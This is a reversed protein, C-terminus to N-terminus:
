GPRRNCALIRVSPREVVVPLHWVWGAKDKWAPDWRTAVLYQAGIAACLETAKTGSAPAPQYLKGIAAQIAACPPNEGGFSVDCGSDGSIAQRRLQIMQAQQGYDNDGIGYQVRADKPIQSDAASWADRLAYNREGLDGVEPDRASERQPLNFRLTVVQYVSGAVGILALGLLFVKTGKKARELVAAGFLLLGFQALLSARMGFDNTAIVRSRLFTAFVLGAVIWFFLASEGASFEKRHRWASVLVIAFFGLEFFYGPALLLLASIETALFHHHVLLSRLWPLGLLLEPQFMMRVQFGLVSGVGGAEGAQRHLLGFLYPAIVVAAALSAIGCAALARSRDASFARWILWAAAVLVTAAGVYNSLGFGSAFSLGALVSLKVRESAFAERSAMWLLLLCLMCCIMGAAHHPVWLFTDAWSTVQDISWWEMDGDPAGGALLAIGTILLDLGTVSMLVVAITWRRRLVDGTWGILYRSYLALLAAVAFMPWVCSAILGQRATIHALRAVVGAPVYWFYYYRLPAAHGPWYLPNAPVVGTRMVTGVMVTRVSHDYTTVSPMLTAGHAIDVLSLIVVAAWALAVFVGSLLQRRTVDLRPRNRLFELAAVSGIAALVWGATVVGVAWVLGVLPLTGAGLSLTLSWAAQERLGRTRFGCLDTWRGVCYGPGTMVLAFVIAGWLSGGV